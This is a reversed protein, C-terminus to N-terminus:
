RLCMHLYAAGGRAQLSMIVSVGFVKLWLQVALLLTVISTSQSEKLMLWIIKEYSKLVAEFDDEDEVEELEEDNQHILFSKCADKEEATLTAEDEHQM